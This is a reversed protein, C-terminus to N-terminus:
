LSLIVAIIAHGTKVIAILWNVMLSYCVRCFNICPQGGRFSLQLDLAGAHYSIGRMVYAVWLCVVSRRMCCGMMFATSQLAECDFGFTADSVGFLGM